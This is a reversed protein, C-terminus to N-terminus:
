LHASGGREDFFEPVVAVDQPIITQQFRFRTMQFSQCSKCTDSLDARVMSPTRRPTAIGPGEISWYVLRGDERFSWIGSKVAQGKEM